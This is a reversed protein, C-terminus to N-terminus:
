PPAPYRVGWVPLDGELVSASVSAKQDPRPPQFEADMRRCFDSQEVWYRLALNAGPVYQSGDDTSECVDLDGDPRERLLLVWYGHSVKDGAKLPKQHSVAYEALTQMLAEAAENFQAAPRRLHIEAAGFTRL